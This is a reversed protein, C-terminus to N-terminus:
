SGLAEIEESLRARKSQTDEEDPTESWPPPHNVLPHVSLDPQNPPSPAIGILGTLLAVVHGDSHLGGHNVTSWLFDLTELTVTKSAEPHKESITREVAFYATMYAKAPSQRGEQEFRYTMCVAVVEYNNLRDTTRDSAMVVKELVPTGVGGEQVM